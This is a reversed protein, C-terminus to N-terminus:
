EGKIAEGPEFRRELVRGKGFWRNPSVATIVFGNPRPEYRFTTGFPDDFIRRQELSKKMEPTLGRPLVELSPPYTGEESRYLEVALGLANVNRPLSEHRAM